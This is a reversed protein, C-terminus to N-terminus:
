QRRTFESLLICITHLFIGGGLSRDDPRVNRRQWKTAPKKTLIKNVRLFRDNNSCPVIEFIIAYNHCHFYVTHWYGTDTFRPQCYILSLSTDTTRILCTIKLYFINAKQQSLRFQGNYAPTRLTPNWQVGEHNNKIKGM